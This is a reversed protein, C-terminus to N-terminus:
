TPVIIRKKVYNDDGNCCLNTIRGITIGNPVIMFICHGVDISVLEWAYLLVIGRKKGLAKGSLCFYYDFGSWVFMM